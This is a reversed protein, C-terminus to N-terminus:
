GTAPTAPPSRRPARPRPSRWGGARAPPAFRPPRGPDRHHEFRVRRALRKAVAPRRDKNGPRVLTKADGGTVTSHRLLPHSVRQLKGLPNLALEGLQPGNLM